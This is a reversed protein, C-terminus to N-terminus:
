QKDELKRGCMPCYKNGIIESVTGYSEGDLKYILGCYDCEKDREAKEQKEIKCEGTEAILHECIECACYLDMLCELAKELADREARLRAIEATLLSINMEAIYNDQKIAINIERLKDIEAQAIILDAEIDTYNM